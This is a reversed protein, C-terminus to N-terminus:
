RKAIGFKSISLFCNPVSFMDEDDGGQKHEQSVVPSKERDQELEIYETAAENEGLDEASASQKEEVEVQGPARCDHNL